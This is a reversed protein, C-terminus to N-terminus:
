FYANGDQMGNEAGSDDLFPFSLAFAFLHGDIEAVALDFRHLMGYLLGRNNYAKAFDPKLAIATAYDKFAADVDATDRYFDARYLYPEHFDPYQAIM